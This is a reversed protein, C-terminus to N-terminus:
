VPPGAPELDEKPQPKRDIDDIIDFAPSGAPAGNRLHPFTIRDDPARLLCPAEEPETPTLIEFVAPRKGALAERGIVDVREDHAVNGPPQGRSICRNRRELRDELPNAWAAHHGM